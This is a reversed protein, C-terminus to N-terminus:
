PVTPLVRVGRTYDDSIESVPDVAKPPDVEQPVEVELNTRCFTADEDLFDSGSRTRLKAGDTPARV